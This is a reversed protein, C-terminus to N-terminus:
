ALLRRQSTLALASMLAAQLVVAAVATAVVGELLAVWVIFLVGTLFWVMVQWAMRGAPERELARRLEAGTEDQRELGALLGPLGAVGAAAGAT